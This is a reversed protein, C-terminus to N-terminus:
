KLDWELFDKYEEGSDEFSGFDACCDQFHNMVASYEARTIEKERLQLGVKIRVAQIADDLNAIEETTLRM